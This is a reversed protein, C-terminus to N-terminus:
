FWLVGDPKSEPHVAALGLPRQCIYWLYFLYRSPSSLFSIALSFYRITSSKTHAEDRTKHTLRFGVTFRCVILRWDIQKGSGPQEADTRRHKEVALKGNWKHGTRAPSRITHTNCIGSGDASASSIWQDSDLWAFHPHPARHLAIHNRQSPGDFAIKADCKKKKPKKSRTENRNQLRASRLNIVCQSIRSPASKAQNLRM